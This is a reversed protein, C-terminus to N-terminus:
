TPIATGDAYHTEYYSGEIKAWTITGYGNITSWNSAAKYDNTGTGLQDYLSKPIYITGGAGGSKFPTNTFANVNGLTVVSTNRLIITNLSSDGNFMNTELKSAALDAALLNPCGAIMYNVSNGTYKPLIIYSFYSDGFPIHTGTGLQTATSTTTFNPLYLTAGNTGSKCFSRTATKTLVPFDYSTVGSCGYFAFAGVETVNPASISTINENLAFAAEKVSTETIQIAGSIDGSAIEDASYGTGGSVNVTLSNILTTDYTDNTTVTDSTQSVLAGSSVVKGEDGAAYTNPVSVNVTAYGVVDQGNGNATISKTGSDVASAPVNVSASAYGVVDHTGNTAISKTGSDVASAPVSVSASAYGTVDHTGNTNINKTGTDVASAPVNVTVQSYGDLNDDSADYTDNATITKTGLTSGGGGSKVYVVEIDDECYKGETLLTKTGSADMTAIASGKYNISIDSM